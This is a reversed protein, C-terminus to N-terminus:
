YVVGPKLPQEPPLEVHAGLKKGVNYALMAGPQGHAPSYNYGAAQANANAALMELFPHDDKSTTSARFRQDSGLVVSGEIGDWTLRAMEGRQLTM